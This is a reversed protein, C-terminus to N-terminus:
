PFWVGSEVAVELYTRPTHWVPDGAGMSGPAMVVFDYSVAAGARALLRVFVHRASAYSWGLALDAGPSRCVGASCLAPAQLKTMGGENQAAYSFLDLDLGVGPELQGMGIHVPLYAALRIPFRRFNAQGQQLTASSGNSVGGSLRVGVRGEVGFAISASADRAGADGARGAIAAAASWRLPGDPASPAEPPPAATRAEVVAPPAAPTMVPPPAPAPPPPTPPSPPPPPPSPPTAPAPQPEYGVERWYREIILAVTDALAPCTDPGRAPALVRRLLPAGDPDTLDVRIGGGPEPAVALADAIQRPGPCTQEPAVSLAILHGDTPRAEGALLLLCLPVLTAVM